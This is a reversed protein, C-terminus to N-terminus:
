YVMRKFGLKSTGFNVILGTHIGTAKLYNILQAQHSDDIAKAAKIELIVQGEVLIDAYYNGVRIERYTVPIPKPQECKLGSTKLEILLANEYVKELFGCGLTSSVRFASGIILETFKDKEENMTKGIM